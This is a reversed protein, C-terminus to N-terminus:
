MNTVLQLPFTFLLTPALAYITGCYVEKFKGEGGTITSVLYNCVVFLLLPLLVPGILQFLNMYAPNRQEFVYSTVYLGTVQLIALWAYLMTAFLWNGRKHYRLEYYVDFPKKLMQKFLLFHEVPKKSSLKQKWGDFFGEIRKQKDLKKIITSLLMLVAVVIIATGLNNEIWENRAYWFSQSYGSVNEAM